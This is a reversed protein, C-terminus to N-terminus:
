IIKSLMTEKECVQNVNNYKEPSRKQAFADTFFFESVILTM